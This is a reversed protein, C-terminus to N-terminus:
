PCVCLKSAIRNGIVVTALFLGSTKKVPMLNGASPFCALYNNYWDYSSDVFTTPLVNAEFYDQTHPRLTTGTNHLRNCMLCWAMCYRSYPLCVEKVLM